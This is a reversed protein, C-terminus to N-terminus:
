TVGPLSGFAWLQLQPPQAPNELTLAKYGAGQGLRSPTHVERSVQKRLSWSLMCNGLTVELPRLLFHHTGPVPLPHGAAQHWLLCSALIELFFPLGQEWGLWQHLAGKLCSASM